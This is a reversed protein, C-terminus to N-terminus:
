AAVQKRRSLFRGIAQQGETIVGACIRPDLQYYSGWEGCTGGLREPRAPAIDVIPLGIRAFMRRLPATLTAVAVESAGGLDNAAAGWLAIMSLANDAAFNGIEVIRDRAVPRGLAASVALEIPEDLYAELFLTEAGARRYGLGAGSTGTGGEHMWTAFAPTLAAGFAERYRRRILPAQSNEVM